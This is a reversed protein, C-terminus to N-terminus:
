ITSSSCRNNSHISIFVLLHLIILYCVLGLRTMRTSLIASGYMVIVQEIHNLNKLKRLSHPLHIDFSRPQPALVKLRKEDDDYGVELDPTSSDGIHFKRYLADLKSSQNSSDLKLSQNSSHPIRESLIANDEM